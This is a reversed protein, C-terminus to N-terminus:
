TLTHSIKGFLLASFPKVKEFFFVRGSRLGLAGSFNKRVPIGYVGGSWISGASFTKGIATKQFHEWLDTSLTRVSNKAHFVGIKTSKLSFSRFFVMELFISFFLILGSSLRTTKLYTTLDPRNIQLECPLNLRRQTQAFGPNEPTKVRTM